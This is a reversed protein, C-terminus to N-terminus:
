NDHYAITLNLSRAVHHELKAGTSETWGPLMVIMECTLLASIDKKMCNVWHEYKDEPSMANYLAPENPGGNIEAPNIVYCGRDRYLKAVRHFAPFNLDVYGTMPGAIYVRTMREGLDHRDIYPSVGENSVSYGMGGGEPTAYWPRVLDGGRHTITMIAGGKTRWTQGVKIM